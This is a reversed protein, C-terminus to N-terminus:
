LYSELLSGQIITNACSGARLEMRLWIFGTQANEGCRKKLDKKINDGEDLGICTVHGV